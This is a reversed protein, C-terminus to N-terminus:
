KDNSLTRNKLQLATVLASNSASGTNIVKNFGLQQAEAAIRESPVFLPLDFLWNKSTRDVQSLFFHLQGSSTIILANINSQQWKEISAQAQFSIYDRRYVERYEVQAKRETLSDFILERGGDGRLILIRKHEVSLLEELALLHESDAVEPYHVIQQTQKSLIQATKQGVAIYTPHTPWERQNELLAIHSLTAAHQSVAIIIDFTDLNTVLKNINDVPTISLLPHHLASIGVETLQQCLQLGQIDPRTVLVPM